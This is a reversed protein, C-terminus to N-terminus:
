RHELADLDHELATQDFKVLATSFIHWVVYAWDSYTMEVLSVSITDKPAFVAPRPQHRGGNNMMERKHGDAFKTMGDTNSRTDILVGDRHCLLRIDASTRERIVSCSDCLSTCSTARQRLMKYPWGAMGIAFHYAVDNESISDFPKFKCM